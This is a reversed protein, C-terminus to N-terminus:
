ACGYSVDDKAEKDAGKDLLLSVCDNHGQQASWHLPTMGEQEVYVLM